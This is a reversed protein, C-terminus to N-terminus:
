FYFSLRMMYYWDKTLPVMDTYKVFSPPGPTYWNRPTHDSAAQASIRLFKNIRRSAYISWKWDDDRKAM